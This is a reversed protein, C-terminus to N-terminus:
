LVVVSMWLRFCFTYSYFTVQLPFWYACHSTVHCNLMPATLVTIPTMGRLGRDNSIIIFTCFM